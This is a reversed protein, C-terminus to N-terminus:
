QGGGIWRVVDAALADVDRFSVTEV